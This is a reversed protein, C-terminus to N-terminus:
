QYASRLILGTCCTRSLLDFFDLVGQVPYTGFDVVISNKDRSFSLSHVVNIFEKNLQEKEPCFAKLYWDKLMKEDPKGDTFHIECGNWVFSEMVIRCQGLELYEPIPYVSPPVNMTLDFYHEKDVRILIDHRFSSPDTGPKNDLVDVFTEYEEKGALRDRGLQLAKIYENKRETFFTFLDM